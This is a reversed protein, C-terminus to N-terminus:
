QEPQAPTLGTVFKVVQTILATDDAPRPEVQLKDGSAAALAQIEECELYDSSALILSQCNVADIDELRRYEPAYGSRLEYWFEYLTQPFPVWYTDHEDTRMKIWRDTTIYPEIAVAANLRAEESAAILAADAGAAQGVIVLPHVIKDRIDLYRILEILDTAELEGDSHYGGTSLGSARQDYLCVAYNAELLAQAMPIMSNRDTREDHLLLVTGNPSLTSDATPTLYVAALTTLGDTDVRFTDVSAPLEAFPAPDNPGLSDANYEEIDARAFIAETRNLPYIVFAMLLIGVVLLFVVIQLAEKLTQNMKAM